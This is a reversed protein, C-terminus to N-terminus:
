EARNVVVEGTRPDRRVPGRPLDDDPRRADDAAVSEEGAGDIRKRTSARRVLESVTVRFSGLRLCDDPVVTRQTIREWRGNVQIWTGNASSRDAVHIAGDDAIVLEAHLRSVSTDGLRIDARRGRGVIFMRQGM